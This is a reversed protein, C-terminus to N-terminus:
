AAEAPPIFLPSVDMYIRYDALKDGRLRLVNVCPLQHARGWGDVYDVMQEVIWVDGDKFFAVFHHQLRKISDFFGQAAAQIADRGNAAPMNGFQFSADETLYQVFGAADMRDIAAFADRILRENPDMASGSM